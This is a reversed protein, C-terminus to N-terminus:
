LKGGVQKMHDNHWGLPYAATIDDRDPPTLDTLFIRDPVAPPEDEDEDTEFYARWEDLAGATDHAAVLLTRDEGNADTGTIVFIQITM